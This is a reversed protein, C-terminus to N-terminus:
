HYELTRHCILLQHQHEILQELCDSSSSRDSDDGDGDDDDDDGDGDDGDGDDDDDDGDGDDDDDDDNEYIDGDQHKKSWWMINDYMNAM